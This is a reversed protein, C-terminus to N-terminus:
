AQQGAYGTTAPNLATYTAEASRRHIGVRNRGDQKARYLAQDALSILENVSDQARFEAVGVSITLRIEGRRTGYSDNVRKFYDIDLWILSLATKYRKAMAVESELRDMLERRNCLGTLPM